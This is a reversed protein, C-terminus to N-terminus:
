NRWPSSMPPHPVEGANRPLPRFTGREENYRAVDERISGTRVPSDAPPHPVERAQASVPTIPGNRFTSASNAYGGGAGYGGNEHEPGREGGGHWGGQDAVRMPTAGYGRGAGNGNEAYAPGAAHRAPAGATAVATAVNREGWGGRAAEPMSRMEPAHQFGGGGHPAYAPQAHAFAVLVSLGAGLFWQGM